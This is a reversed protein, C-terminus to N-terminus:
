RSMKVQGDQSLKQHLRDKGIHARGLRRRKVQHCDCRGLQELWFKPTIRPEQRRRM